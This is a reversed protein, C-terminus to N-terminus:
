NSFKIMEPVKNEMKSYFMTMSKIVKAGRPHIIDDDNQNQRISRRSGGRVNTSSELIYYESELQRLEMVLLVLHM